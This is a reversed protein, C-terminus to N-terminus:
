DPWQGPALADFMPGIALVGQRDAWEHIQLRLAAAKSEPEFRALQYMAALQFPVLNAEMLAAEAQTLIRKVASSNESLSAVGARLLVAVGRSWAPGHAYIADAERRAANSFRERDRGPNRLAM